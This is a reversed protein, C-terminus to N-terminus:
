HGATVRGDVWKLQTIVERCRAVREGNLVNPVHLIM